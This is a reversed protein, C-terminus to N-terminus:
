LFWALGLQANAHCCAAHRTLRDARAQRQDAPVNLDGPCFLNPVTCFPCEIVAPLFDLAEELPRQRASGSPVVRWWGGPCGPVAFEQLKWGRWRTSPEVEQPFTLVDCDRKGMVHGCAACVIASDVARRARLPRISGGCGSDEM